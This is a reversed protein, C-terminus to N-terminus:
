PQADGAQAAADHSHLHVVAGRKVGAADGAEGPAGLPKQARAPGAKLGNLYPLPVEVELALEEAAPVPVGSVLRLGRKRKRAVVGAQLELRDIGGLRHGPQDAEDLAAGEVSPGDEVPM